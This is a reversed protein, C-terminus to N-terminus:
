KQGHGIRFNVRLDAQKFLEGHKVHKFLTGLSHIVTYEICGMFNAYTVWAIKEEKAGHLGASRQWQPPMYM